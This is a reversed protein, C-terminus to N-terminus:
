SVKKTVILKVGQIEQVVVEAGEPIVQDDASRATWDMGNLKAKGESERNRITETVIAVQGILSDINTRHVRSNLYKEALPRTLILLILSVAVFIGAQVSIPLGILGALCAILAGGAFWITTLGMTVLEILIFIIMVALWYVPRM